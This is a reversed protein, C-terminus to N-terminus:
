LLESVLKRWRDRAPDPQENESASKAIHCARCLSQLNALDYPSGGRDLPVVHDCEM